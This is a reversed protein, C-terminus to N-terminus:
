NDVSFSQEEKEKKEEKKDIIGNLWLEYETPKMIEYFIERESRYAKPFLAYKEQLHKLYGADDSLFFILDIKPFIKVRLFM